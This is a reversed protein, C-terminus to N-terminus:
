DFLEAFQAITEREYFDAVEATKGTRDELEAIVQAASFSNGGLDFFSENEDPLEELELIEKWIERLTEKM